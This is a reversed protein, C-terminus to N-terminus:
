YGFSKATDIISQELSIWGGLAEKAVHNDIKQRDLEGQAGPIDQPLAVQPFHKRLIALIKNWGFPEAAAWIRKGGLSPETLALVHLRGDDRVDIFWQPPVLTAWTADGHLLAYIWRVTSRPSGHLLPGYNANPLITVIEFSPKNEEVWKWAAKESLTKTAAYRLGTWSPHKKDEETASEYRELALENWDKDTLPEEKYNPASIVAVSSSTFVVRKVSPEKAAARLLAIASDVAQQPVEDTDGPVSGPLAVHAVGDAGQIAKELQPQSTLDDLIVFELKGVDVGQKVFAAKLDEARGLDRVTGRVRYGAQLAALGVHSAVYGTIGTVVILSNPAIAPM